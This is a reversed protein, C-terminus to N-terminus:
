SSISCIFRELSFAPSLRQVSFNYNKTQAEALCKLWFKRRYLNCVMWSSIRKTTKKMQWTELGVSTQWRSSYTMFNRHKRRKLNVTRPSSHSATASASELAEYIFFHWEELCKLHKLVSKHTYTKFSHINQSVSRINVTPPLLTHSEASYITGCRRANTVKLSSIPNLEEDRGGM